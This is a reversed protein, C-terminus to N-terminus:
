NEPDFGAYGRKEPIILTSLCGGHLREEVGNAGSPTSLIVLVVLLFYIFLIM